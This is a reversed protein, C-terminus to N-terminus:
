GAAAAIGTVGAREIARQVFGSAKASAAFCAAYDAMAPDREKPTGIAVPVDFYSGPLIRSGPLRPQAAALMPAVHSFAEADGAAPMALALEPREPPVPRLTAATLTKTLHAAQASNAPVAIRAGARDIDDIHEIPSSQPVLYTTQLALVIPGFQITAARDATVGLFTVDLAGAKFGEIIGHPNEFGMLDVPVDLERALERGLDPVVGHLGGDRRQAFYPVTWVGVRLTGTPALLATCQKGIM